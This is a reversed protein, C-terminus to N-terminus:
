ETVTITATAMKELYEYTSFQIARFTVHYTGPTPPAYYTAVSPFQAVDHFMVIGYPCGTFDKTQTDLKGCDRYFDRDKSEKIWWDVVPSSTFGTANGTIEVSGGVAVTAESPTVTPIVSSRNPLGNGGCGTLGLGLIVSVLIRKM